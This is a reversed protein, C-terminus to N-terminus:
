INREQESIRRDIVPLSITEENIPLPNSEGSAGGTEPGLNQESTTAPEDEDNCDEVEENEELSSPDSPDVENETSNSALLAEVEEDEIYRLSHEVSGNADTPISDMREQAVAIDIDRYFRNHQKLFRLWIMINEKTIRFDKYGLLAGRVPKRALFFPLENPMHPVLTCIGSIDQEVNIIDGQYGLGGGTSQM